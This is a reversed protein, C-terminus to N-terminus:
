PPSSAPAPLALGNFKSLRAQEYLTQGTEPNQAYPLFVQEFTVMRTQIIALQAELWTKVIRWGVRRAQGLDGIYRKPIKGARAQSSLVDLVPKPDAPLVFALEGFGTKLRFSLKVPNGAGDFDTLIATAGARALMGQIEGITAETRISTTYNLLAM